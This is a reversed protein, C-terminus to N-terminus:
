EQKRASIARFAEGGVVSGPTGAARGEEPRVVEVRGQFVAGEEMAICHTLVDGRVSATRAIRVRDRGRLNGQVRGHVVIERAEVEATVRGNPGITLSAGELRVTGEVVGDIFVDERGSIEGKVAVGKSVQSAAVRPEMPVPSREGVPVPRPVPEPTPSSPNSEVQKRWM